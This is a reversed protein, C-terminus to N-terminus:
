AEKGAPPKSIPLEGWEAQGPLREVRKNEWEDRSSPSALPDLTGAAQMRFYEERVDVRRRDKRMGLEEEKSMATVKQNRYDYRTQTFSSLAFSSLVVTLLFPGGFLLFPRRRLSSSLASPNLPKSSFNAM